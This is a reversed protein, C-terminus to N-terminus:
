LDCLRAELYMLAYAIKERIHTCKVNDVHVNICFTNFNQSMSDFNDSNLFNLISFSFFFFLLPCFTLLKTSNSLLFYWISFM